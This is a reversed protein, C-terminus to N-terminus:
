HYSMTDMTGKTTFMRPKMQTWGIWRHCFMTDMTDTTTFLRATDAHIPTLYTRLIGQRM